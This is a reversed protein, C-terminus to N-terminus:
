LLILYRSEADSLEKSVRLKDQGDFRYTHQESQILRIIGSPNISINKKFYLRGGRNGLDIKSIGLPAAKLKLGTVRFLSRAAEPLLGFRDIMEEQIESLEEKDRASAIRKYM